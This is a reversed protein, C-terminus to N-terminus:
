RSRCAPRRRSRARHRGCTRTRACSPSRSCCSPARTERPCPSAVGLREGLAADVDVRLVDHLAPLQADVPALERVHGRARNSCLRHCFVHVPRLLAMRKSHGPSVSWTPTHLWCSGAGWVRRVLGELERARHSVFRLQHLEELRHVGAALLTEVWHELEHHNGRESERIAPYLVVKVRLLGRGVAPCRRARRRARASGPERGAGTSSASFRSARGSKTLPSSDTYRPLSRRVTFFLRM